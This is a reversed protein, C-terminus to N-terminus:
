SAPLKMVIEKAMELAAIIKQPNKGGAQALDPKGGGAGGVVPSVQKVWDGANFGREVLDRSFGAVIVVKDEGTATALFIAASPIKKRIQDLATKMQAADSHPIEKVILRIEAIQVAQRILEDIDIATRQQEVLRARLNEIEQEVMAVRDAVDALAVNLKQAVTRLLSRIEVYSLPQGASGVLIESEAVDKRGTADPLPEIRTGTLQKKLCRAQEYRDSVAEPIDSARVNLLKAIRLVSDRVRNQFDKARQGTVAQIRRTGSSINEESIIEFPGIENVETVHTGGCLEKSFDGVTVMRVPDPYKEGFLMMAGAKKAQELPLIEAIVKGGLAVKDLVMKEIATLQSASVAELNAFDFRLWDDVVKSGRQQAHEGLNQQLAYHLVHTASHARRIANRRPEDVVASVSEGDSIIGEVMQGIHIFVEGNKQTDLVAFRGQPGVLTGTDGVQGGSEAYFPTQDLVVYQKSGAKSVSLNSHRKQTTVVKDGSTELYDEVLGCVRGDATTQAYGQFSTSKIERKIDDIPGFDGMVGKSGAGSDIGHQALAEQYGKWDFALGREEALSAFLEAPIGFTQYLDFAERGIVVSQNATRLASFISEIKALGGDLTSFFNREENRIVKAVRDATARLEPYPQEMQAVVEPVLQYLFPERIGMEHGQLVARRLLRRIVYEEKNAGPYVNEHIAMCCARVHDAIRRLRRGNESEPQYNLGVVQAAAEVIPRLIDIHFNTTVGQMTAAIRELGMGTDINKSPLPILNEPPSGVRNFQTFVLNWIECEPGNDPHFFIESCPGCVGDPGDTPAGAPWFNDHEGMRQIRDLSLGVEQHWIDSAEDDDLYVSVTLRRPDIGLWKKDTLFEWAWFIAERKFYDGFSFNGLMEFFTHHYATRGVNEIDGTRLCKQATTARTYDLKVKGLFHDKFQNMGAPTFLVTPDWKPVLVDSPVITHGKSHFFDLYKQRIENTKM